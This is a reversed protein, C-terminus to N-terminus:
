KGHLESRPVHVSYSQPLAARWGKRLQSALLNVVPAHVPDYAVNVNEYEWDEASPVRSAPTSHAYLEIGWVPGRAWDAVGEVHSFALWETYRWVDTRISYGMVAEGNESANIAPGDTVASLGNDPRAYQQFVAAKWQLPTSANWLPLASVGEVCLPTPDRNETCLPPHRFGAAEVVTPFIDVSEILAQSRQPTIQGALRMIFPIRTGVEFNTYKAWMGLEGLHWGHDGFLVVVTSEEFGNDKLSQMVAGVFSDTQSICAWYARKVARAEVDPIVCASSNWAAFTAGATGPAGSGCEEKSATSNIWSRFQASTQIAVQPVRSPAFKRKALPPFTANLPYLDYWKSQCVEPMHPKHFGVALFFPRPPPLGMAAHTRKLGGLTDIWKIAHMAIKGDQLQEQTANVSQWGVGAGNSCVRPPGDSGDGCQQEINSPRFPSDTAHFYPLGEPSWSYLHDDNGSPAGPHFVKGQGITLYGAHKFFQPLSYANPLTNRWYEKGSIKWMKTSDARRGTLIAQRAPACIAVATYCREFTMGTNAIADINPTLVYPSGYAGLEPRLDDIAFFLVNKAGEPLPPAPPALEGTTCPGTVPPTAATRLFCNENGGHHLTWVSCTPENTCADCCRQQDTTKFHRIVTCNPPLCHKNPQCTNAILGCQTPSLM